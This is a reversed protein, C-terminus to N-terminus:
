IINRMKYKWADLRNCEPFRVTPPAWDKGLHRTAMEELNVRVNSGWDKSIARCTLYKFIPDGARIGVGYSEVTGGLQIVYGKRAEEGEGDFYYDNAQNLGALIIEDTMVVLVDADDWCKQYSSETKHDIAKEKLYDESTSGIVTCIQGPDYREAIDEVGKVAAAGEETEWVLASLRTKFYPGVFDLPVSHRKAEEAQPGDMTWTAVVFDVRGGQLETDRDDTTVYVFEVSQRPFGLSAAINYALDIEFGQWEGTETRESLGPQDGKIGVRIFGRNHIQQLEPSDEPSVSLVMYGGFLLALVAAPLGVRRVAKRRMVPVPKGGSTHASRVPAEGARSTAPTPSPPPSNGMGSTESTPGQQAPVATLPIDDSAAYAANKIFPARDLHDRCQKSPRPRNRHTLEKSVQRFISDLDLYRPLGPIGNRLVAILAGTFATFEEGPPSIATATESAAALVYTGSVEFLVGESQLGFARAAYCCDLIVIRREARSKEIHEKIWTYPVATDHVSERESSRVALHYHGSWDILGHGAYYVLLTDTAEKAAEEVVRSLDRPSAPDRLVTCNAVPLNWAATILDALVEVNRRTTPLPHLENFRGAGILVIRTGSPNPLGTSALPTTSERDDPAPPQKTSTM